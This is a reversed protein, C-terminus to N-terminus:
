QQYGVTVGHIIVQIQLCCYTLMVCGFFITAASTSDKGSDLPFSCLSMWGWKTAGRGSGPPLPSRNREYTKDFGSVLGILPKVEPSLIVKARRRDRALGVRGATSEEGCLNIEVQKQAM